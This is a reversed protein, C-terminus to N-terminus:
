LIKLNLLQSIMNKSHITQPDLIFFSDNKIVLSTPHRFGLKYSRNFEFESTKINNHHCTTCLYIKKSENYEFIVRKKKDHSM